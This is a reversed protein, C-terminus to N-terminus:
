KYDSIRVTNETQYLEDEQENSGIIVTRNENFQEMLQHYLQVGKTDLNSCPEDLLLLDSQSCIALGLKLRQKMGSSFNRIYKHKAEQLFVTNLFQDATLGKQFPKFKLHLEVLEQCSLTEILDVYPATFSLKKYLEAPDISANQQQYLISGKTPLEAASILKLLTSKGSGNSGIIGTCSNAQFSYSLGKFIWEKHYRKSLDNLDIHVASSM